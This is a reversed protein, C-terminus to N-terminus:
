PKGGYRREFADELAEALRVAADCDAALQDDWGEPYLGRLACDDNDETVFNSAWIGRATEKISALRSDQCGAPAARDKEYAAHLAAPKGPEWVKAAIERAQERNMAEAGEAVVRCLM